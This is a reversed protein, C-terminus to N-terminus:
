FFFLLIFIGILTTSETMITMLAMCYLVVTGVENKIKAIFDSSKSDIHFLYDQNLIKKFLFYSINEQFKFITKGEYKIHVIQIINKITLLFIFVIFFVKFIEKENINLYYFFNQYEYYFSQNTIISLIPFVTAITFVELMGATLILFFIFYIKRKKIFDLQFFIKM